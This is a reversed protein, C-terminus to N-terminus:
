FEKKFSFAYSQAIRRRVPDPLVGNFLCLAGLVGASFLDATTSSRTTNINRPKATVVEAATGQQSFMQSGSSRVGVSFVTDGGASDANIQVVPTPATVISFQGSACNAILTQQASSTRSLFACNSTQSYLLGGTGGVLIMTFAAIGGAIPLPTTRRLGEDSADFVLGASGNIAASEYTPGNIGSYNVFNGAVSGALPSLTNVTTGNSIGTLMRADISTHFGAQAPNLHRVRRGM